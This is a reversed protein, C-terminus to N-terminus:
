SGPPTIHVGDGQYKFCNRQRLKQMVIGASWGVPIYDCQSLQRAIVSEIESESTYVRQPLSEVLKKLRGNGCTPRNPYPDERPEVSITNQHWSSFDGSTVVVSRNSLLEVM